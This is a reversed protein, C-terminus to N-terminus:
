LSNIKFLKPYLYLLDKGLTLMMGFGGIDTFTFTNNKYEKISTINKPSIKKPIELLDLLAAYLINISLRVTSSEEQKEPTGETTSTELETGQRQRIKEEDFIVNDSTVVERKEKMYTRYCPSDIDYGVLIGKESKRNIKGRKQAQTLVYCECGFPRLKEIKMKRGFWLEAPSKGPVNSTGTQNITCIAHNMAEAWLREDLCDAQIEAKAAEVITRMEREVRGNQEPTDVNTFTHFIGLKDMLEKTKANKLETCNDSRLSKVRRGLQNEVLRLYSEIKAPGESKTKMFYCTRYHTFDDKLMLWYKSGGLSRINMEGTDVHVLDLPQQATKPNNPHSSRHQKGYSCGTCVYNNWDDVYKIGKRKLIDRVYKVNQHALREHWVKISQVMLSTVEERRLTM